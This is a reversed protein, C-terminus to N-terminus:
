LKTSQWETRIVPRGVLRTAEDVSMGWKRQFAAYTYGDAWSGPAFIYGIEEKLEPLKEDSVRLTKTINVTKEM